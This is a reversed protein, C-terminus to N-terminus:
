EGRAKALADHVTKFDPTQGDENKLADCEWLGQVWELAKLLEPAAAILRANAIGEPEKLDEGNIRVVVRAFAGWSNSGIDVYLPDFGSRDIIWWPGPTHKAQEIM